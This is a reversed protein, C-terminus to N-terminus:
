AGNEPEFDAIPGYKGATLDAYLQRGYDAPDDACAHFPVACSVFPHNAFKVMCDIATHGSDAWRADTVSAVVVPEPASIGEQM